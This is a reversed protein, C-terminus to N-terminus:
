QDFKPDTSLDGPDVTPPNPCFLITLDQREAEVYFSRLQDVASKVEQFSYVPRALYDKLGLAVADYRRLLEADSLDALAKAVCTRQAATMTSLLENGQGIREVPLTMQLSAQEMSDLPNEVLTYGIEVWKEAL